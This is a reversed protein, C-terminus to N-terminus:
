PFLVNPLVALMPSDAQRGLGSGDLRVLRSRHHKVRVEHLKAKAANTSAARSAM